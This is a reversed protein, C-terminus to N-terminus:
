RLWPNGGLSTGTLVARSHSAPRSQIIAILAIGHGTRLFEQLSAGVKALDIASGYSRSTDIVSEATIPGRTEGEVDLGSEPTLTLWHATARYIAMSWQTGFLAPNPFRLIAQTMWANVYTDSAVAVTFSPFLTRFEALTPTAM